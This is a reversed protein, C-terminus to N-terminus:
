RHDISVLAYVREGTAQNTLIDLGKLPALSDGGTYLYVTITDDEYLGHEILLDILHRMTM